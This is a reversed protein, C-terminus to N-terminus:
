LQIVVYRCGTCSRNGNDTSTVPLKSGIYSLIFNSLQFALHLSSICFFVLKIAPSVVTNTEEIIYLKLVQAPKM